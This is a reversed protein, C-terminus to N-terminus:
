GLVVLGTALLLDIAIQELAHRAQEWVAAAEVQLRHHEAAVHDRALLDVHFRQSPYGRPIGVLPVDREQPTLERARPEREALLLHDAAGLRV